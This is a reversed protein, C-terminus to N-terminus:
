PVEMAVSFGFLGLIFGYACGPPPKGNKIAVERTLTSAFLNFIFNTVFSGVGLPIHIHLHGGIAFKLGALRV